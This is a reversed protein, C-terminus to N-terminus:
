SDPTLKPRMLKKVQEELARISEGTAESLERYLLRDIMESFRSVEASPVIQRKKLVYLGSAVKALGLAGERRIANECDAQILNWNRNLDFYYERSAFIKFLEPAEETRLPPRLGQERAAAVPIWVAPEQRASRSFSSKQVELKYFSLTEGGISKEELGMVMCKGLMPYIVTEGTGFNKPSEM